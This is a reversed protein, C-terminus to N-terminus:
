LRAFTQFRRLTKENLKYNRDINEWRERMRISAVRVASPSAAHAERLGGSGVRVGVIVNVGAGGVCVGSGCANVTSPSPTERASHLASTASKVLACSPSPLVTEEASAVSATM